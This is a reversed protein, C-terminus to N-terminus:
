LVGVIREVARLEGWDTDRTGRVPGVETEVVPKGRLFFRSEIDKPLRRLCDVLEIAIGEEVSLAPAGVTADVERDFLSEMSEGELDKFSNVGM